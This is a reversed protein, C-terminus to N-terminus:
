YNNLHLKSSEVVKSDLSTRLGSLPQKHNGSTDQMNDLSRSKKGYNVVSSDNEILLYSATISISNVIIFYNCNNKMGKMDASKKGTTPNLLKNKLKKSDELLKSRRIAEKIRNQVVIPDEASDLTLVHEKEELDELKEM